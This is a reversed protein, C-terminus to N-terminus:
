KNGILEGMNGKEKSTKISDFLQHTDEAKTDSMIVSTSGFKIQM